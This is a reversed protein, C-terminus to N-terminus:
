AAPVTTQKFDLLVKVMDGKAAATTWATGVISNGATATATVENNANFYLDAGVTIAAAAPLYVFDGSRAIAILDNAVFSNKMPNYVLVGAIKNTVAAQKLAPATTTAVTTDITLIAGANLATTQNTSVRVDHPQPLNAMYAYMGAVKANPAFQNLSINTAM